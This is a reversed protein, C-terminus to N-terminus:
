IEDQEMVTMSFTVFTGAPTKSLSTCMGVKTGELSHTITLKSGDKLGDLIALNAPNRQCYGTITVTASNRGRFYLVDGHAGDIDHETLKINANWPQMSVFKITNPVAVGENLVIISM